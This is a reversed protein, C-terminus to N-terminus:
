QSVSEGRVGKRVGERVCECVFERVCARVGERVCESERMGMTVACM